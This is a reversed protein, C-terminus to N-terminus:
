QAHFSFQQWDGNSRRFIIIHTGPNTDKKFVDMVYGTKASMLVFNRNTGSDPERLIWVQNLDLDGNKPALFIPNEENNGATVYHENQASQIFVYGEVGANTLIWKQYRTSSKRQITVQYTGEPRYELVLGSNKDQIYVEQVPSLGMAASQMFITAILFKFGFRAM